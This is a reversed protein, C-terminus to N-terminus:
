EIKMKKLYWISGIIGILSIFSIIFATSIRDYTQPSKVDIIFNTQSYGGDKYEVKLNYTGKNLSNLYEKKLTIISSGNEVNYFDKNLINDNVKVSDLLNAKGSFEIVLDKNDYTQNGGSLLKYESLTYAKPFDSRKTDILYYVYDSYKIQQLFDLDDSEFIVKLDKNLIKYTSYNYRGGILSNDYGTIYDFNDLEKISTGDSLFGKTTGLYHLTLYLKDGSIAIHSIPHENLNFINKDLTKYISENYSDTVIIRYNIIDDINPNDVVTAIKTKKDITYYTINSDIKYQKPLSFESSEYYSDINNVDLDQNLIPEFTNNNFIFYLKDYDINKDKTLTFGDQFYTYNHQLLGINYGDIFAIEPPLIRFFKIVEKDSLISCNSNTVRYIKNLNLNSIDGDVSAYIYNDNNDLGIFREGGTFLDCSVNIEDFVYVTNEDKFIESGNVFQPLLLCFSFIIKKFM